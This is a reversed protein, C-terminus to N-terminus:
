LATNALIMIEHATAQLLIRSTRCRLKVLEILGNPVKLETAVMERYLAEKRESMAQMQDPNVDRDFLLPIVLHNQMGFTQRFFAESMPIDHEQALQCWAQYHAPGTDAIVGDLDFIAGYSEHTIM